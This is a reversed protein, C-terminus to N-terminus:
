LLKALIYWLLLGLIIVPLYTLISVSAIVIATYSYHNMVCVLLTLILTTMIARMLQQGAIKSFFFTYFLGLFPNIFSLAGGILLKMIGLTFALVLVGLLIIHSKNWIDAPLLNQLLLNICYNLSIALILALARFCYWSWVKNGKPLWHELLNMLYSLVLMSCLQQCIQNFTADFIPFINICGDEIEVFPLPSFLIQLNSGFSYVVVNLVYLCVIAIASSLASNILSGKGFCLRFLGGIILIGVIAALLSIFYQSASFQDPLAREILEKILDM